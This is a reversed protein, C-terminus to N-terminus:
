HRPRSHLNVVNALLLNILSDPMKFFIPDFIPVNYQWPQSLPCSRLADSQMRGSYNLNFWIRIKLCNNMEWLTFLLFIRNNETRKMAFVPWLLNSWRRGWSLCLRLGHCVDCSASNSICRFCFCSSWWWWHNCCRCIAGLWNDLGNWVVNLGSKLTCHMLSLSRKKPCSHNGPVEMLNEITEPKATRTCRTTPVTLQRKFSLSNNPLDISLSLKWLNDQWVAVVLWRHTVHGQKCCGSNWQTIM